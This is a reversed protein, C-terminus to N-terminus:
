CMSNQMQKVAATTNQAGKEGQLQVLVQLPFTTDGEDQEIEPLTTTQSAVIEDTVQIWECRTSKIYETSEMPDETPFCQRKDPCLPRLSSRPFQCWWSIVTSSTYRPSVARLLYEILGFLGLYQKPGDYCKETLELSTIHAEGKM